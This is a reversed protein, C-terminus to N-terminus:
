DNRQSSHRRPFKTEGPSGVEEKAATCLVAVGAAGIKKPHSQRFDRKGKDTALTKKPTAAAAEIRQKALVRFNEGFLMPPADKFDNEELLQKLLPNLHQLLAKRREASHHYNANGMLQLSTRIMNIAEPSLSFEEARELVMVISAVTDLWFQQLCSTTRDIREADKSINASVVADIKPCRTYWLDPIGFKKINTRRASNDIKSKFATELFASAAESLTVLQDEVEDQLEEDDEFEETDSKMMRPRKAPLDQSSVLDNNQLGTHHINGSDTAGHKMGSQLNVDSDTAGSKMTKLEDQIAKISATLAAIAKTTDIETEEGSM